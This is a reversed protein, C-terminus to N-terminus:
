CMSGLIIAAVDAFRLREWGDYIILVSMLRITMVVVRDVRVPHRLITRQAASIM